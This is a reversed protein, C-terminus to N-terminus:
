HTGRSYGFLVRSYGPLVVQHVGGGGGAYTRGAGGDTSKWVDKLYVNNTIGRSMGGIVYIAGAADIVSTHWRRAAWPASATRITWSVGAASSLVCARGGAGGRASSYIGGTGATGCSPEGLRLAYVCM